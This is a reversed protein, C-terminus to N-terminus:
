EERRLGDWLPCQEEGGPPLTCKGCIIDKVGYQPLIYQACM